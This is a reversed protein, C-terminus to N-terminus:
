GKKPKRTPRRSQLLMTLLAEAAQRAFAEAGQGDFYGEALIGVDEDDFEAPEVRWHWRGEEDDDDDVYAELDERELMYQPVVEVPKWNAETSM